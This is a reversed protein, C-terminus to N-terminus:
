RQTLLINVRSKPRSKTKDWSYQKHSEKMKLNFKKRLESALHRAADKSLMQIDVGSKNEEAKVINSKYKESFNLVDDVFKHINTKARIQLVGVYSKGAQRSCNPCVFKKIELTISSNQIFKKGGLSYTVKVLGTKLDEIALSELFAGEPLKLKSILIQELHHEAPYDSKVWLGEINIMGCKKCVKIGAGKPLFVGTRAVFCDPCLGEILNKTERASILNRSPGASSPEALAKGCKPCFRTKISM